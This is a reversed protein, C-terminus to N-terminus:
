HMCFLFGSRPATEYRRPVIHGQVETMKFLAYFVFFAVAAFVSSVTLLTLLLASALILSDALDVFNPFSAEANSLPLLLFVVISVRISDNAEKLVVSPVRM